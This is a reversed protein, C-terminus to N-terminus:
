RSLEGIEKSLDHASRRGVSDGIFDYFGNLEERLDGLGQEVEKIRELVLDFKANNPRNLGKRFKQADM